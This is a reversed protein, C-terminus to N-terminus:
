HISFDSYVKLTQFYNARSVQCRPPPQYPAALPRMSSHRTLNTSGTRVPGGFKEVRGGCSQKLIGPSELRVKEPVPSAEFKSASTFQDSPKRFRGNTSINIRERGNSSDSGDTM